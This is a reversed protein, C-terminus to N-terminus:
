AEILLNNVFLLRSNCNKLPSVVAKFYWVCSTYILPNAQWFISHSYMLVTKSKPLINRLICSLKIVYNSDITALNKKHFHCAFYIFDQFRYCCKEFILVKATNKILM